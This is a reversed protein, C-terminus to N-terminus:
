QARGNARWFISTAEGPNDIKRQARMGMRFCLRAMLYIWPALITGTEVGAARAIDAVYDPLARDMEDYEEGVAKNMRRAFARDLAGRNVEADYEDSVARMAEDITM